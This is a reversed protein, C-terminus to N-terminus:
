YRPAAKNILKIVVTRLDNIRLCYLVPNLASNVMAVSFTLRYVIGMTPDDERPRVTAATIQYAFSPLYCLFFFLLIYFMTLSAKKHRAMFVRKWNTQSNSTRVSRSTENEQQSTLVSVHNFLDQRYRRFLLFVKGYCFMNTCTCMVTLGMLVPKFFVEKTDWFRVTVLVFVLLWLFEMLRLIRKTTMLTANKIALYRKVSIVSLTLFTLGGTMWGICSFIVGAVCYFDENNVMEGIKNLINLPAVFCGVLLDTLALCGLLTNSPSHLAKNKWIAYIILANSVTATISVLFDFVCTTINVVFVPPTQELAPKLFACTEKAFGQHVM